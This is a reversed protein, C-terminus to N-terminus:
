LTEKRHSISFIFNEYIHKQNVMGFDMTNNYYRGLATRREFYPNCVYLSSSCALQLLNKTRGVAVLWHDSRSFCLTRASRKSCFLVVTKIYTELRFQELTINQVTLPPGTGSLIMMATELFSNVVQLQQEPSLGDIDSGDGNMYRQCDHLSILTRWKAEFGSNSIFTHTLHRPYTLAKYANAIAYLLCASDLMGQSLIRLKM